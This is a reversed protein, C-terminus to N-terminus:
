GSGGSTKPHKQQEAQRITQRMDHVLALAATKSDVTLGDTINRYPAFREADRAPINTESVTGSLGFGLVDGPLGRFVAVHGNAVGVYWQRDLYIRFATLGAGIVVLAISV